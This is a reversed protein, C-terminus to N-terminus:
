VGKGIRVIAHSVSLKWLFPIFQEAGLAAPAGPSAPIDKEHNFNFYKFLYRLFCFGEKAVPCIISLQIDISLM